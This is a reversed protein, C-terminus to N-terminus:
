RPFVTFLVSIERNKALFYLSFIFHYLLLFSVDHRSLNIPICSKKQPGMTDWYHSKKGFNSQVGWNLVKQWTLNWMMWYLFFKQGGCFPNKWRCFCGVSIILLLAKEGSVSRERFIRLYYHWYSYSM